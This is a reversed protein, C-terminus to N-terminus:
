RMELYIIKRSIRPLVRPGIRRSLVKEYDDTDNCGVICGM